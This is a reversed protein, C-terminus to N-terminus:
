ITYKQEEVLAIGQRLIEVFILAVLALFLNIWEFNVRFVIDIVIVGLIGQAIRRSHAMNGSSYIQNSQINKVLKRLHHTVWLGTIWALIHGITAIMMSLWPDSKFWVLSVRVLGRLESIGGEAKMFEIIEPGTHTSVLWIAGIVYAGYIIWQFYWFATVLYYLVSTVSFKGIAKM